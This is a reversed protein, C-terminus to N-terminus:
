KFQLQHLYFKYVAPTKIKTTIYPFLGINCFITLIRQNSRYLSIYTNTLIYCTEKVISFKSFRGMQLSSHAPISNKWAYLRVSTAFRVNPKSSTIFVGATSTTTKNLNWQIHRLTSHQMIIDVAWIYRTNLQSLQLYMKRYFWLSVYIICHYVDTLITVYKLFVNRQKDHDYLQSFKSKTIKIIFFHKRM